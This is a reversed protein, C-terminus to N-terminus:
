TNVPEFQEMKVPEPFELFGALRRACTPEKLKHMAVTEIQRIRERTVSFIKGIESLTYAYGDSLGYRLRIIERERYNLSQLVDDIGAKLLTHHLGALPDYGRADPVLEGLYNEGEGGLPEDLSLPHRNVKLARDTVAVTVGSEEAMDELSPARTNEQTMRNSAAIVKEATTQMHVPVRITRSHDAISRSIAQRIWWTAYTSFKFGRGPEFKDVARMLGTNGEQILDLFSLGRNRYRKAISVVLRLNAASFDRRSSEYIHKLRAIKDLRRRLTQPTELTLQVLRRLERRLEVIRESDAQIGPDALQERIDEMRHAIQKLKELFVQWNQWRIPTEELLRVAKTRRFMMRRWVVRRQAAPHRKNVAFAFDRVNQQILHSLTHLNPQILAIARQRQVHSSITTVLTNELRMKGTLMKQLMEAGAQLMFETALLSHRFRYRTKEIRQAVRHEEDRSFLPVDGMQALYLQVPDSEHGDM